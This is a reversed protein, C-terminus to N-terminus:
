PDIGKRHCFEEYLWRDLAEWLVAKRHELDVDRDNRVDEFDFCNSVDPDHSSRAALDELLGDLFVRM